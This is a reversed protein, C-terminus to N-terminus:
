MTSRPSFQSLPCARLCHGYKKLYYLEKSIDDIQGELQEVEWDEESGLRLLNASHNTPRLLTRTTERKRLDSGDRDVPKVRSHQQRQLTPIRETHWTTTAEARYIRSETISTSPLFSRPTGEIESDSCDSINDDLAYAEPPIPIPRRRNNDQSHGAKNKRAEASSCSSCSVGM